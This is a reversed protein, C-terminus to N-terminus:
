ENTVTQDYLARYMNPKNTKKGESTSPSLSSNFVRLHFRLRIIRIHHIM